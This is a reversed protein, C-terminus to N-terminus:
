QSDLFSKNCEYGHSRFPVRVSSGAQNGDQTLMPQPRNGQTLPRLKDPRSKTHAGGLDPGNPAKGCDSSLPVQHRSTERARRTAHALGAMHNHADLGM